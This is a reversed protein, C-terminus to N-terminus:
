EEDERKKRLGVGAGILTAGIGVFVSTSVVGTQPLKGGTTNGTSGGTSGSNSNSSGGRQDGGSM